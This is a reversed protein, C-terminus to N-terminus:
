KEVKSPTFAKKKPTGWVSGDRTDEPPLYSRITSVMEVVVTDNLLALARTAFQDGISSGSALNDICIPGRYVSPAITDHGYVFTQVDQTGTAKIRRSELKWDWAKGRVFMTTINGDKEEIQINYPYKEVLSHVLERARKEVLDSTRNQLLFSKMLKVESDLPEKGVTEVYLQRPSIFAWKSRKSGYRHANLFSDFAKVSMTGWVGDSVELAIESEGILQANLRVEHKEYDNWFLYPARNELAYSVNEPLRNLRSLYLSLAKADKVRFARTFLRALLWKANQISHKVGNISVSKKHTIMIPCGYLMLLVGKDFEQVRNPRRYYKRGKTSFFSNTFWNFLGRLTPDDKSGRYLGVIVKNERENSVSLLRDTDISFELTRMEQRDDPTEMQLIVDYM